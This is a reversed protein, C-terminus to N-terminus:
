TAGTEQAGPLFDTVAQGVTAFDMADIQDVERPTLGCLAGILMATKAVDGQVADMARLDKVKPRRVTLESVEEGHAQIAYTLKVTLESM